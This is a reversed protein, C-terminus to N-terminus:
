AKVPGQNIAPGQVPMRAPPPLMPHPRVVVMSIRFLVASIVVNTLVYILWPAIQMPGIPVSAFPAATIFTSLIAEIPNWLLVASSQQAFFLTVRFLIVMIWPTFLWAVCFVYSLATSVQPRRLVASWFLGFMGTMLATSLMVLFASIVQGPAVGGFFFILSFFPLSAMILVFVTALGSVLKAGLLSFPTLRSCLLLDFTQREKEGNITTATFAPAIFMILFLQVIVFLGYLEIGVQSLTARANNSTLQQLLFFGLLGMVLLYIVILWILRERRFRQRLEKSLLAVFTM